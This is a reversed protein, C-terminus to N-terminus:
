GSTRELSVRFPLMRVASLRIATRGVRSPSPFYVLWFYKGQQGAGTIKKGSLHKEVEAASTGVKGFVNEDHQAKVTAITKGVLHKRIFDVIRAVKLLRINADRM